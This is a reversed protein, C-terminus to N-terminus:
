YNMWSTDYFDSHALGCPKEAKNWVGLDSLIVASESSTSPVPVKWCKLYM